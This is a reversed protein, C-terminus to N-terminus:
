NNNLMKLAILLSSLEMSTAEMKKLEQRAAIDQGSIKLDYLRQAIEHLKEHLNEIQRVELISAYKTMEHSHLWEGFKCHEPSIEAVNFNIRGEIFKKLDIKWQLHYLLGKSFAKSKM